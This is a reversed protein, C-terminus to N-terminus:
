RRTSSSCYPCRMERAKIFVGGRGSRSLPARSPRQLRKTSRFKATLAHVKEKVAAENAANGEEGKAALGDLVEVIFGGVQQVGGRRLRALDGGALRPSHGLHRLAERTSPIGNKNCTIHARGLAAEAAKGTIKKPRLDVLM